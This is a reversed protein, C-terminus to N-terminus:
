VTRRRRPTDDSEQRADHLHERPTKLVSSSATYGAHMLEGLRKMSSGKARFAELLGNWMGIVRKAQEINEIAKGIDKDLVMAAEVDDNSIRKESNSRIERRTQAKLYDLDNIARDRLEAADAVMECVEMILTPHDMVEQDLRAPDITIRDRLRSYGAPYHTSM